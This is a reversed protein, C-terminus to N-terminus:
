YKNCPTRHDSSKYKRNVFFINNRPYEAADDSPGFDTYNDFHNIGIRIRM